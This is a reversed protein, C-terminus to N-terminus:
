VWTTKCNIKQENLQRELDDKLKWKIEVDIKLWIINKFEWWRDQDFVRNFNEKLNEYLKSALKWYLEEAPQKNTLKKINNV